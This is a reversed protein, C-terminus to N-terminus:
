FVKPLTLFLFFEHFFNLRLQIASESLIRLNVMTCRVSARPQAKPDREQAELSRQNLSLFAFITNLIPNIFSGGCQHGQTPRPASLCNSLFYLFSKRRFVMKLSILIMHFELLFLQLVFEKSYDRFTSHKKSLKIRVQFQFM